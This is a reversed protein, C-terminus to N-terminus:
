FGIIDFREILKIEDLTMGSEKSLNDRMKNKLDEISAIKNDVSFNGPFFYQCIMNDNIFFKVLSIEKKM